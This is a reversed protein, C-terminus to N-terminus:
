QFRNKNHKHQIYITPQIKLGISHTLSPFLISTCFHNKRGCIYFLHWGMPVYMYNCASIKNLLYCIVKNGMELTSVFYRSIDFCKTEMMPFCEAEHNETRLM